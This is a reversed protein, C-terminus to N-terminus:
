LPIAEGPEEDVLYTFLDDVVKNAAIYGIAVMWFDDDVWYVQNNAVAELSNWLPSNVYDSATSETVEGYACTFIHTGDALHILEPSIITFIGRDPDPGTQSEPRTLGAGALITGIFALALALGTLRRM